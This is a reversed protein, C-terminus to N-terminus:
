LGRKSHGEEPIRPANFARKKQEEFTIFVMKHSM